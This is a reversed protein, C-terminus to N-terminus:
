LKYTERWLQEADDIQKRAKEVDSQFDKFNGKSANELHERAKWLASSAQELLHKELGAKKVEYIQRETM